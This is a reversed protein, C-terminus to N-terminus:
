YGAEKLIKQRLRDLNSDKTWYSDMLDNADSAQGDVAYYIGNIEYIRTGNPGSIIQEILQPERKM